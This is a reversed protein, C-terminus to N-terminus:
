SFEKWCTFEVMDRQIIQCYAEGSELLDYSMIKACNGCSLFFFGVLYIITIGLISNFNAFGAKLLGDSYLIIFATCVKLQGLLLFFLGTGSHVDLPSHSM